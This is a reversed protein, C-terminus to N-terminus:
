TEDTGAPGTVAGGGPGSAKGNGGCSCCTGPATVDRGGAGGGGMSVGIANTVGGELAGSAAGCSELGAGSDAASAARAKRPRERICDIASRTAMTRARTANAKTM